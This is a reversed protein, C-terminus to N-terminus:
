EEDDLLLYPQPESRVAPLVAAPRSASPPKHLKRGFDWFKLGAAIGQGLPFSILSYLLVWRPFVHLFPGPAWLDWSPDWPTTITRVFTTQYIFVGLWFFIVFGVIMTVVMVKMQGALRLQQDAMMRTQEQRLKAVRQHNQNRQAERLLKNIHGNDHTSHGQGEWDTVFHRVVTSSVALVTAALLLTVLPFAGGLGMLPTLYVGTLGGIAHRAIPDSFLLLMGIMVMPAMLMGMGPPPPLDGSVGGSTGSPGKIM